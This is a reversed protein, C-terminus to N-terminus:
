PTMMRRFGLESARCVFITLWLPSLLCTLIQLLLHSHWINLIPSCNWVFTDQPKWSFHSYNWIINVTISTIGSTRQLWLFLVDTLVTNCLKTKHIFLQSVSSRLTNLIDTLHLLNGLYCWVFTISSNNFLLLKILWLMSVCKATLLTCRLDVLAATVQM